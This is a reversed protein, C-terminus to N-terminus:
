DDALAFIIMLIVGIVALCVGIDFLVPTGPKGFAPLATEGWIATLFPAGTFIPSLLGSVLVLLLGTAILTRPHVRLLTRASDMGESIGYLSFATASILGAIFGGGPDNHGRVLIYFAFVLMLPLLVRTATTLITSRVM